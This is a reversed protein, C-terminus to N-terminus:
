KRLNKVRGEGKKQREESEHCREFKECFEAKSNSFQERRNFDAVTKEKLHLPAETEDEEATAIENQALCHRQYTPM